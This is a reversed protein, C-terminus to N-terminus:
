LGEARKCLEVLRDEPSLEAWAQAQRAVADADAGSRAVEDPTALTSTEPSETTSTNVLRRIEALRDSVPPVDCQARESATLDYPDATSAPSPTTSATTESAAPPRDAACGALVLVIASLGIAIIGRM